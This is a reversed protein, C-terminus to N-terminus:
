GGADVAPPKNNFVSQRLFVLPRPLAGQRRTWDLSKKCHAAAAASADPVGQLLLVGKIRLLEPVFWIYDMQEAHQLAAEAEALGEDVNGAAALTEARGGHFFVAFLQYGTAKLEALSSRPAPVPIAACPSCAAKRM